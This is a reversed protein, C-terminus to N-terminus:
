FLKGYLLFRLRFYTTLVILIEICFIFDEFDMEKQFRIPHFIAKLLKQQKNNNHMFNRRQIKTEKSVLGIYYIKINYAKKFKKIFFSWTM